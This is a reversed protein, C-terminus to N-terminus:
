YPYRSYRFRSKFLDLAEECADSALDDAIQNQFKPVHHCTVKGHSEIREKLKIAKEFLDQNAVPTGTDNILRLCVMSQTLVKIDM